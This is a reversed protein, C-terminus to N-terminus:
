LRKFSNKWGFGPSFSGFEETAIEIAEKDDFWDDRTNAIEIHKLGTIGFVTLLLALIILPWRYRIQFKGMKRFFTNIKKIKM